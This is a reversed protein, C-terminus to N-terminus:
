REISRRMTREVTEYGLAEYFALAEQNFEWVHLEVETAGAGKAWNEAAKMLARGIGARRSGSRVMLSLVHLTRRAALVPTAASREIRGLLVGVISGGAEAVLLLGDRDELFATFSRGAFLYEDRELASKGPRFVHPLALMHLRAVEALLERVARDDSATAHRARMTMEADEHRKGESM